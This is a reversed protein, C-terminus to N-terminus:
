ADREVLDKLSTLMALWNKRSHEAEAEDANNDQALTVRTGRDSIQLTYTLTHYNEPKDETGSLPSFHTVVLEHEPDVRVVNGKDEFSKGEYEGRWTITSGPRWDTEVESGFMFQKIQDPDTLATWVRAPSAAVDIQAEAVIGAM